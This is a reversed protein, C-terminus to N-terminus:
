SEATDAVRDLFVGMTHLLRELFALGAASPEPDIVVGFALHCETADDRLVFTGECLDLHTASGEIRSARRWPPEFSLVTEVLSVGDVIAPHLVAGLGPGHFAPSGPTVSGAGVGAGRELEALLVAWTHERPAQVHRELSRSVYKARAV